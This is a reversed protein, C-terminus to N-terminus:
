KVIDSWKKIEGKYIKKVNDSSINDLTNNKNVVVAIADECIETEDYKEEESDTLDRTIIALSDKDKLSELSAKTNAKTIEIKLKDNHKSYEDKLKTIAEEASAVTSIKLTGEPKKSTFKEEKDSTIYGCESLIDRASDSELFNIFDEAVAGEDDLTVAYLTHKFVYSGNKVNERTPLVGNIKVAKVKDNVSVLPLYGIAYNDNSVATRIDDASQKVSVGSFTLDKDDEMFDFLDAVVGRLGSGEERSVVIIDKSNDFTGNASEEGGQMDCSCLTLLSLACLCIASLIKKM